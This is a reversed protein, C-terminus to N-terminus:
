QGQGPHGEVFAAAQRIVVRMMERSEREAPDQLRREFDLASAVRDDLGPVVDELAQALDGDSVRTRLPRTAWVALAAIGGVIVVLHVVRVTYPLDLFRDLLFSVVLALATGAAILAVARVVRVGRLRARLAALVTRVPQLEPTM